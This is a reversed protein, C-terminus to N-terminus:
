EMMALINGCSKTSGNRGKNRQAYMAYKPNEVLRYFDEEVKLIAGRAHNGREEKWRRELARRKREERERRLKLREFVEQELRSQCRKEHEKRKLWLRFRREREGVPLEKVSGCTLFVLKETTPCSESSTASQRSVSNSSSASDTLTAQTRQSWISCGSKCHANKPHSPEPTAVRRSEWFNVARAKNYMGWGVDM